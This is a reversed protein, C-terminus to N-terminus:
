LRGAPSKWTNTRAPDLKITHQISRAPGAPARDPKPTHTGSSTCPLSGLQIHTAQQVQAPRNFVISTAYCHVGQVPKHAQPPKLGYTSHAEILKNNSTKASKLKSAAETPNRPSSTSCCISLATPATNEHTLLQSHVGTLDTSTAATYLALYTNLDYKCRMAYSDAIRQSRFIASDRNEPQTTTRLFGIDDSLRSLWSLRQSKSEASQNLNIACSLRQAKSVLSEKTARM